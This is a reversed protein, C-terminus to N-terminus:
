QWGIRMWRGRGVADGIMAGSGLQAEIVRGVWLRLGYGSGM